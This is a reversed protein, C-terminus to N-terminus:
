KGLVAGVGVGGLFYIIPEYWKKKEQVTKLVTKIQLPITDARQKVYMSFLNEPYQYFLRITDYKIVTDIIAIFPKTIILTDRIYEIRSKVKEIVIAENEVTKYITDYKIIEKMIPASTYSIFNYTVSILLLIVIILVLVILFTSIYKKKM